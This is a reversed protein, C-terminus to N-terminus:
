CFSCSKKCNKTMYSKYKSCYGKGAWNQCSTKKDKCSGATTTSTTTTTAGDCANCTKQCNDQAWQANWGTCWEMHEGNKTFQECNLNIDRCSPYTITTEAPISYLTNPRILILISM